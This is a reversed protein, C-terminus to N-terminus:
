TRELDYNTHVPVESFVGLPPDRPQLEAIQLHDQIAELAACGRDMRLGSDRQRSIRGPHERGDVAKPREGETVAAARGTLPLWQPM